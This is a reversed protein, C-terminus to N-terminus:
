PNAHIRVVVRDFRHAELDRRPVTWYLVGMPVGFWQALLVRDEPGKGRGGESPDWAGTPDPYGDFGAAYGGIQWEGGEDSQESWIELLAEARPHRALVDAGVPCSPLGM